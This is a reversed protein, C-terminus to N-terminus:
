ETYRDLLCTCYRIPNHILKDNKMFYNNMNYYYGTTVLLVPTMM